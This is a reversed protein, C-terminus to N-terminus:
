VYLVFWFSCDWFCFCKIAGNNVSVHSFPCIVKLTLLVSECTPWSFCHPKVKTHEPTTIVLTIFVQWRSINSPSKCDQMLRPDTQTIMCELFRTRRTLLHITARHTHLYLDSSLSSTFWRNTCFTQGHPVYSKTHFKKPSAHQCLPWSAWPVCPQHSFPHFLVLRQM